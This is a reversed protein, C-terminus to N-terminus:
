SRIYERTDVDSEPEKIQKVIHTSPSNLWAPVEIIIAYRYSIARGAM